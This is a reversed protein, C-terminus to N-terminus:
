SKKGEASDAPEAASPPRNRDEVAEKWTRPDAVHLVVLLNLLGSISCVLIGLNLHTPLEHDIESLNSEPREPEGFLGDAVFASFGNGAQLCFFIPHVEWTVAMNDALISEGTWFLGLLSSGIILARVRYGLLWHGAGPLLWSLVTVFWYNAGPGNEERKTNPTTEKAM